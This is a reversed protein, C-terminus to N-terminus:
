SLIMGIRVESPCTFEEITFVMGPELILQNGARIYPTEHGEMGLGHGTRHIFYAGYGAEEIVRRAAQDIEEAKIGPRV